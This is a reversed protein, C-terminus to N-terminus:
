CVFIEGGTGMTHSTLTQIGDTYIFPPAPVSIPASYVTCQICLCPSEKWICRFIFFTNGKLAIFVHLNYM